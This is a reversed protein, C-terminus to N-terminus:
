GVLETQLEENTELREGFTIVADVTDLPLLQSINPLLQKKKKREMQALMATQRSEMDDLRMFLLHFWGALLYACTASM